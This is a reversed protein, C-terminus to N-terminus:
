NRTLLLLSLLLLLVSHNLEVLLLDSTDAAGLITKKVRKATVDLLIISM